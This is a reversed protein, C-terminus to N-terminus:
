IKKSEKRKSLVRGLGSLAREDKPNIQIAKKFCSIAEQLNEQMDYLWGLYYWTFEYAPNLEIVQKLYSIAEEPKELYGYSLGLLYLAKIEKPDIELAKKLCPIAEQFMELKGYSEGILFWTYTSRPNIKVVRKYLDIAKKYDRKKYCSDAADLIKKEEDLKNGGRKLILDACQNCLFKSGDPMELWQGQDPLIEKLCNTCFMM